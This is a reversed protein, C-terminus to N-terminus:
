YRQQAEQSDYTILDSEFNCTNERHRTEHRLMISYEQKDKGIYQILSL